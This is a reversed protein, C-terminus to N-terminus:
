GGGTQDWLTNQIIQMLPKALSEILKVIKFLHNNCRRRNFTPDVM